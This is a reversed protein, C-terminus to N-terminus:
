GSEEDALLAGNECGLIKAVSAWGELHFYGVVVRRAFHAGDGVGTKLDM